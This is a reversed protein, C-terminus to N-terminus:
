DSIIQKKCYLKLMTPGYFRVIDWTEKWPIRYKHRVHNAIERLVQEIIHPYPTTKHIRDVVVLESAIASPPGDAIGIGYNFTLISDDRPQMGIDEQAAIVERIRSEAIRREEASLANLAISVSFVM